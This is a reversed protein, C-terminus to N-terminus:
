DVETYEVKLKRVRKKKPNKLISVLLNLLKEAKSAYIYQRDRKLKIEVITIKEKNNIKNILAISFGTIKNLCIINDLRDIFKLIKEVKEEKIGSKDRWKDLTAGWIRGDTRTKLNEIDVNYSRFFGRIGSFEGIDVMEIFKTLILTLQAVTKKRLGEKLFDNTYVKRLSLWRINPIFSKVVNEVDENLNNM